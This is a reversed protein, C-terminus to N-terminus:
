TPDVSWEGVTAVMREVNDSYIADIGMALAARIRRAEQVDWAFALLGFRHVLSVVGLSWDAEHLNVAAIGDRALEAAQRELGSGGSRRAFSRVLRVDRHSARVRGLLETDRSCLWLRSPDGVARAVELIPGAVTPVKLDLSLEFDAGLEAYLDALRPVGAEGLRAAPTDDVTLRRLGQRVVADHVLVVHGDGSLRADSELGAAGLDLARRFAALTNDPGGARGGRHAFTIPAVARWAPM